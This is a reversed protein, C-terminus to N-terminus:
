GELLVQQHLVLCGVQPESRLCAQHVVVRRQLEHM